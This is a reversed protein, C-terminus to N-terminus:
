IDSACALACQKQLYVSSPSLEGNLLILESSMSFREVYISLKNM